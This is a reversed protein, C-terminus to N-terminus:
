GSIFVPMCWVATVDIAANAENAHGFMEKISRAIQSSAVTLEIVSGERHKERLEYREPDFL